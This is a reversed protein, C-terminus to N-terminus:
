ACVQKNSTFWNSQAKQIAAIGRAAAERIRADDESQAGALAPVLLAALMCFLTKM